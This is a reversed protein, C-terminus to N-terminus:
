DRRQRRLGSQQLAPGHCVTCSQNFIPQIDNSYSIERQAAVPLPPLLVALFLVFSINCAARLPHSDYSVGRSKGLASEDRTLVSSTEMWGCDLERPLSERHSIEIPTCHM